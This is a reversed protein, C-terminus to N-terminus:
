MGKSEFHAVVSALAPKEVLFVIGAGHMLDFSRGYALMMKDYGYVRRMGKDQRTVVFREDVPLSDWLAAREQRSMKYGERRIARKLQDDSCYSHISTSLAM